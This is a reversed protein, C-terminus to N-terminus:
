GLPLAADDLSRYDKRDKLARAAAFVDAHSAVVRGPWAAAVTARLTASGPRLFPNTAQEMAITSPVTCGGLARTAWVARIRDALVANDPEVSWAFRLNDSTYEHACCVATAGPLSALRMLSAHMVEPPGDFLYGCGGAFLTDGCFVVGDFVFSIHGDIHGETLWVTGEVEGIRVTDGDSVPHTLGPIEGARSAPGVVQMEALLGRRELDVNVGIHDGHTHTNLVVSPRIGQVKCYALVERASPGDVIAAIGTETCVALWVLNDSAAPVCHIELAGGAVRFPPSPRTVAHM